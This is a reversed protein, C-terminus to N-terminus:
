KKPGGICHFRIYPNDTVREDRQVAIGAAL